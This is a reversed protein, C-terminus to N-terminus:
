TRKERVRQRALALTGVFLISCTGPEPVVVLGSLGYTLGTPGITSVQGTEPDVTYLSGPSGDSGGDAVYLVGSTPDSDMGALDGLSTDLAVTSFLGPTAPNITLLEDSDTDLVYLAGEDDFAMASYDGGGIPGVTTANADATNVTFLYHVSGGGTGHWLGYMTGTTPDAGLDGEFVPAYFPFDLPGVITSDGTAPNVAFLTAPVDGDRDSLAYLTGDTGFTIGALGNHTMTRPNSATGTAPDIDYLTSGTDTTNLGLLPPTALASAPALVAALGAVITPISRPKRM